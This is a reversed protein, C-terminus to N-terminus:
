FRDIIPFQFFHDTNDTFIVNFDVAATCSAQYFNVLPVVLTPSPVASITMVPAKFSTVNCNVPFSGAPYHM